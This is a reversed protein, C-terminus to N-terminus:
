GAHRTVTMFPGDRHARVIAEMGSMAGGEDRRAYASQMWAAHRAAYAARWARAFGQGRATRAFAYVSVRSKGVARCAHSISRGGAIAELFGRQREPTWGDRRIRPLPSQGM